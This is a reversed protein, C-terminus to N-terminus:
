EGYYHAKILGRCQMPSGCFALVFGCDNAHMNKQTDNPAKGYLLVAFQDTLVNEFIPVFYM